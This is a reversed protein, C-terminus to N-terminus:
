IHKSSYALWINLWLIWPTKICKVIITPMNMNIQIILYLSKTKTMMQAGSTNASSLLAAMVDYAIPKHFRINVTIISLTTFNM